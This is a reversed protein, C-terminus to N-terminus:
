CSIKRELVNKLNVQDTTGETEEDVTVSTDLRCMQGSPLKNEKSYIEPLGSDEVEDEKSFIHYLDEPMLPAIPSTKQVISGIDKDSLLGEQREVNDTLDQGQNERCLM